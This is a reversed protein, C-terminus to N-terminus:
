KVLINLAFRLADVNVEASGRRDWNFQLPLLEELRALTPEIWKPQTATSPVSVETRQYGVPESISQSFHSPIGHQAPWQRDDFTSRRILATM